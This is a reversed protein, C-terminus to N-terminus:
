FCESTQGSEQAAIPDACWNQLLRMPGICKVHLRKRPSNYLGGRGGYGRRLLIGATSYIALGRRVGIRQLCRVSCCRQAAKPRCYRGRDQLIFICRCVNATGFLGFFDDRLAAWIKKGSVPPVFFRPSVCLPIKLQIITFHEPTVFRLSRPLDIPNIILLEQYPCRAANDPRRLAADRGPMSVFTTCRAEHM